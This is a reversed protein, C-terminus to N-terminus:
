RFGGWGYRPVNAGGRASGPYHKPGKDVDDITGGEPIACNLAKVSGTPDIEAPVGIRTLYTKIMAKGFMKWRGTNTFHVFETTHQNAMGGPSPLWFFYSPLIKIGMHEESKKCPRTAGLAQQDPGMVAYEEDLLQNEKIRSLDAEASVDENLAHEQADELNFKALASGIEVHTLKKGWAQLCEDTGKGPFMVVVGTHLEGASKGTDRFLALTHNLGELSRVYKLFETLDKGIVVDEDTYVVSTVKYPIQAHNINLFARAKELKMKNIDNTLPRKVMHVNGEYGEAPAWIDVYDDGYLKEKIVKAEKLTEALCTPRDTVILSEGRWSGVKKLSSVWLSVQHRFALRGMIVAYFVPKGMPKAAPPTLQEHEKPKGGLNGQMQVSTQNKKQVSTENRTVLATSQFVIALLLLGKM